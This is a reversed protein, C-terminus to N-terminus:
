KKSAIHKAVSEIAFFIGLLLFVFGGVVTVFDPTQLVKALPLLVFMIGVGGIVFGLRREM